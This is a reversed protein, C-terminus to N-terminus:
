VLLPQPLPQSVKWNAVLQTGMVVVGYARLLFLGPRQETTAPAPTGFPAEAGAVNLHPAYAIQIRGLTIGM